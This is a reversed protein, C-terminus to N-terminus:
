KIVLRGITEREEVRYVDPWAGREYATNEDLAVADLVEVKDENRDYSERWVLYVIM